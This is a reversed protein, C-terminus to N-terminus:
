ANLLRVDQIFYLVKRISIDAFDSINLFYLDMHGFKLVVLAELVCIILPATAFAQQRRDCRFQRAAWTLCVDM